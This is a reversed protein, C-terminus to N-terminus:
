ELTSFCSSTVIFKSAEERREGKGGRYSCCSLLHDKASERGRKIASEMVQNSPTSNVPRQVQRVKAHMTQGPQVSSPQTSHRCSTVYSPLPPRKKGGGGEAQPSPSPFTFVLLLHAPCVVVIFFGAPQGTRRPAIETTPRSRDSKATTIQLRGRERERGTPSKQVKKGEREKGSEGPYPPSSFLVFWITLM